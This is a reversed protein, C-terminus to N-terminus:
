VAQRKRLMRLTSAGIPLLLLAGAIMTSPEPVATLTGSKMGDSYDVNNGYPSTPNYPDVASGVLTLVPGQSYDWTV